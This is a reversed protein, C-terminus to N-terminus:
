FREVMEEGAVVEAIAKGAWEPAPEVGWLAAITPPNDIIEVSEQLQYGRRIGPGHILWPTIMDEPM